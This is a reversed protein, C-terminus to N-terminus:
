IRTRKFYPHNNLGSTFFYESFSSGNIKRELFFFKEKEKCKGPNLGVIICNKTGIRKETLLGRPIIGLKPNNNIGECDFDCKVLKEKLKNITSM